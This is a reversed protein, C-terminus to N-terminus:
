VPARCPACGIEKISILRSSPSADGVYTILVTLTESLLATSVTSVPRIDAKM